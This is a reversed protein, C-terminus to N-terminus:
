ESPIDLETIFWDEVLTEKNARFGYSLKLSQPERELPLTFVLKKLETSNPSIDTSVGFAEERDISAIQEVAYTSDNIEVFLEATYKNGEDDILGGIGITTQVALWKNEENEVILSIIVFKTDNSKEITTENSFYSEIELESTITVDDISFKVNGKSVPSESVCGSFVIVTTVIMIVIIILSNWKTKLERM